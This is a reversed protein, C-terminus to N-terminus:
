SNLVEKFCSKYWLKTRLLQLFKVEKKVYSNSSILIQATFIATLSFIKKKEFIAIIYFKIYYSINIHEHTVSYSTSKKTVCLYLIATIFRQWLDQIRIYLRINHINLTM